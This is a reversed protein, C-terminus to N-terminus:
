RLNVVMEMSYLPRYVTVGQEMLEMTHKVSLAEHVEYDQSLKELIVKEHALGLDIVLQDFGGIEIEQGEPSHNDFWVRRACLSWSKADSPKVFDVHQQNESM